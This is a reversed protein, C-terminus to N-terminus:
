RAVRCADWADKTIVEWDEGADQPVWQNLYARRFENLKGQALAKRYEGRIAEVTITHGLAPMCSWWTAEDGPDAGPDAAWEFYATGSQLGEEVAARGVAVKAELYPSGDLWGATSIIGMQKNKRTIMAPGLAQELRWDKHAFSEDLYAEDLTSGHGATETAAELGWRSGNTFRFHENGPPKNAKFRNKFYSSAQLDPLFDEEWKELAKKRTQATYVIHQRAGFFGTATCRHTAKAEVFTSKGSQRPVTLVYEDYALLATVPDIELIVDAADQQWPMFPKGLLRAVKGVAPGLTPRDPNRRTGFRPPCNTPLLTTTM